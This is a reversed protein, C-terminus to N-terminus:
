AFAVWDFPISSASGKVYFNTSDSPASLYVVGNAKPTLMVFSPSAGIGHAVSVQTGATAHTTGGGKGASIGRIAAIVGPMALSADYIQNIENQTVVASKILFEDFVGNAQLTGTYRSGVYMNAPLSSIGAGSGSGTVSQVVGNLIIQLNGGSWTAILHQWTGPSWSM